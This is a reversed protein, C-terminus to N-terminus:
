HLKLHPRIIRNLCKLLVMLVGRVPGYLEILHRRYLSLYTFRAIRGEVMVGGGLFSFLNGVTHFKALNVLSGLDKYVYQTSPERGQIM